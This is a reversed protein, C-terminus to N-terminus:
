LARSGARGCRHGRSDLWWEQIVVQNVSKLFEGSPCKAYYAACRLQWERRAIGSGQKGTAVIPLVHEISRNVTVDVM